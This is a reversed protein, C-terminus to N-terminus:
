VETNFQGWKIMLKKFFPHRLNRNEINSVKLCQLKIIITHVILWLSYM